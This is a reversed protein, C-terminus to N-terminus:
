VEVEIPEQSSMVIEDYTNLKRIQSIAGERTEHIAEKKNEGLFQYEVKYKKM